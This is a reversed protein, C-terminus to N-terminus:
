LRASAEVLSDRLHQLADVEAQLARAKAALLDAEPGSEDLDATPM